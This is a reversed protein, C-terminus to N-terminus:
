NEDANVPAAAVALGMAELLGASRQPDRLYLKVTGKDPQYDRLAFPAGADRGVLLGIAAAPIVFMVSFIVTFLVFLDLNQGPPVLMVALVIGALIGIVTGVVAGNTRRTRRRKACAECFPIEIKHRLKKHAVPAELVEPTAAGCGACFPPFPLQTLQIRLTGDADPMALPAAISRFSRMPGGEGLREGLELILAALEGVRVEYQDKLALQAFESTAAQPLDLADPLLATIEGDAGSVAVPV